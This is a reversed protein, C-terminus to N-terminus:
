GASLRLPLAARAVAAVVVNVGAAIVLAAAPSTAAGVVGWGVAGASTGLWVMLMALSSGRGRVWTELQLTFNSFLVNLAGMTGAGVLLLAVAGVWPSGALALLVCGGSWVVAAAAATTEPREASRLRPLVWVAAVSGVGLAASMVGFEVPSVHLRRRAVLPLMASLAAGTTTVVSMRLIPRRLSTTRWVHRVGARIAAGFEREGDALDRVVPSRYRRVVALVGVFSAANLAFVGGPGSAAIVGGAIAPGVAQAANRSISDLGIAQPLEAPSVLEPTLAMFAPAAMTLAVSELFTGLVLVPVNMAGVAEVIGLTLAVVLAALQTGWLVARRDVVDAFAGAHLALLFGPVAWATQVLGALVPSSSLSTIAWGAAVLHMFTGINSVLGAIWLARYWRVRLPSWPSPDSSM